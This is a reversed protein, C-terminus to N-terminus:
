PVDRATSVLSTKLSQNTDNKGLTSTLFVSVQEPEGSTKQVAAQPHMKAFEWLTQVRM